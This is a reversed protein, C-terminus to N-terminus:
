VDGSGKGLAALHDDFVDAWGRRIDDLIQRQRAAFGDRDALGAKILGALRDPDDYDFIFDLLRPDPLCSRVDPGDCILSPAGMSLAQSWAIQAGGGASPSPYVCLRAGRLLAALGATSLGPMAVLDHHLGHEVVDRWIEQEPAGAPVALFAKLPVLDRQILRRMAKALVQLNQGPLGESWVVLYTVDQFPFDHLYRNPANAVEARLQAWGGEVSLPNVQPCESLNVPATPAIRVRDDALGLGQALASTAVVIPDGQAMLHTSRARWQVACGGSAWDGDPWSLPWSAPTGDGFIVARPGALDVAGDYDPAMVLWGDVDLGSSLAAAFTSDAAWIPGRESTLRSQPLLNTELVSGNAALAETATRVRQEAELREQRRQRLLAQHRELQQQREMYIQLQEDRARARAVARWPTLARELNTKFSPPQFALNSELVAAAAAEVAVSQDAEATEAVELARAAEAAEAVRAAAAAAHAASEAAAAAAAELRAPSHLVWAQGEPGVIETLRAVVIPALDNPAAVHVVYDRAAAGLVLFAARRTLAGANSVDGAPWELWIGVQRSSNSPNM